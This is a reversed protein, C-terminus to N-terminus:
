QKNGHSLGGARVAPEHWAHGEGRIRAPADHWYDLPRINSGSRGANCHDHLVQVAHLDRKEEFPLLEWDDARAPAPPPSPRAAVLTSFATVEEGLPVTGSGSPLYLRWGPHLIPAYGLRSYFRAPIAQAGCFPSTTVAIWPLASTSGSLVMDTHASRLVFSGLRVSFLLSAVFGEARMYEQHGSHRPQRSLGYTTLLANSLTPIDYVCDKVAHAATNVLADRLMNSAHGGGQFMPDTMVGGVGAMPVATRGVRVLRRWLRCTAVQVGVVCPNTM